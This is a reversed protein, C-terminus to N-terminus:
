NRPYRPRPLNQHVYKEHQDRNSKRNFWKECQGCRWLDIVEGVERPVNEHVHRIHMQIGYKTTTTKDCQTCSWKRKYREEHVKTIHRQVIKKNGGVYDCQDCAERAPSHKRYYHEDLASRSWKIKQPCGPYPCKFSIGEHESRTHRRISSKWMSKYDCQMCQLQENAM